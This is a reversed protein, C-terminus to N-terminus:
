KCLARHHLKPSLAMKHKGTRYEENTLGWYTASSVCAHKGATGFFVGLAGRNRKEAKESWQHLRDIFPDQESPQAAEASNSEGSGREDPGVGEVRRISITFQVDM